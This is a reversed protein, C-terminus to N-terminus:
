IMADRGYCHYLHSVYLCMLLGQGYDAGELPDALNEKTAIHVVTLCTQFNRNPQFDRLYFMCAFISLLAHYSAAHLASCLSHLLIKGIILYISIMIHVSCSFVTTM